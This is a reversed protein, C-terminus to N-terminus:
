VSTSDHGNLAHPSKAAQQDLLWCSSGEAIFWQALGYTLMIVIGAWSAPQYFKNVALVSDSLVFLSAGLVMCLGANHRYVKNLHLALWLMACIVVGYVWVPLKMAGLSPTLLRMLATYYIIVFVAFFLNTKIAEQKRAYNFFWCYCVHALLFSSLGLIFFLSHRGEFLLLVDGLWSFALASVVWWKSSSQVPQVRKIFYSLLSLVILPKTIFRFTDLEFQICILDCFLVFFFLGTLAKKNM